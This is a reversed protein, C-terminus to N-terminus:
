DGIFYDLHTAPATRVTADLTVPDYNVLRRFFRFGETRSLNQLGVDALHAELAEAHDHLTDIATQLDADLVRLTQETSLWSRLADRPNALAPGIAAGSHVRPAPEYVLVLFLELRYLAERQANLHEARRNAAAQAVPETCRPATFPEVTRKLLYQYVRCR